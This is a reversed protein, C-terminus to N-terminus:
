EKVGLGYQNMKRVVTSQSVGLKRAIERTSNMEEAAERLMRKELTSVAEPMSMESLSKKGNLKIQPPLDQYEITSHPTMIILREILNEVERINGPWSYSMMAEMAPASIGKNVDYRKNYNRVFHRILFPIDDKRERLPPIHLPVVSLRYYLDERFEGKAVMEELNRNTCAIVQVDLKRPTVCGIRTLEFDQIVRLIKVQLEKPLEGVEDLLITGGDAVEFKGPKGSKLAGTFAGAEHGFLESELLNEPIAGCDVKVFPMEQRNGNKQIFRAIVEKGVGTEGTILVTSDFEALRAAQSMLTIMEHSKAVIEYEGCKRQIECMRKEYHHTLAQTRELKEKLEILESIDRVNTVVKTINGNDDFVPNGTVLVRKGSFLEHILTVPEKQELVKLTVSESCFGEEELEKMHKGELDEAKAGSIREYASNVMITYGEGDTIWFGDYSYDIIKKLEEAYDKEKSEEQLLLLFGDKQGNGGIPVTKVEVFEKGLYIREEMMEQECQFMKDSHSGSIIKRCSFGLDNERPSDLIKETTNNFTVIKGENDTVILGIGLADMVREIDPLNLSAM